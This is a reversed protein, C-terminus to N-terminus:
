TSAFDVLALDVSWDYNGPVITEPRPPAFAHPLLAHCIRATQGAALVQDERLFARYSVSAQGKLKGFLTFSLRQVARDNDNKLEILIPMAPDPCAQGDLTASAVIAETRSGRQAKDFVTPVLVIAAVIAALAAFGYGIRRDIVFALGIVLFAIALSWAMLRRDTEFSNEDKLLYRKKRSIFSEIGVPGSGRAWFM